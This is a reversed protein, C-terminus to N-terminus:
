VDDDCILVADAGADLTELMGRSFGGSGGLNPQDVIRLRDGLAAAVDGFGPRDAVKRTGQDVVQVGVDAAALEASGALTAPTAVCYEPKDMTTISLIVEGGRRPPVDVSWGGGDVVVGGAAATGDGEAATVECWL